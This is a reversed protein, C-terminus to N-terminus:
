DGQKMAQRICAVINDVQQGTFHGHIIGKGAVRGQIIPVERLVGAYIIAMCWGRYRDTVDAFLMSGARDFEFGVAPTGYEDETHYIDDLHSATGVAAGTKVLYYPQSEDGDVHMKVYGEPVKGSDAQEYLKRFQEDADPGRPVALRFELLERGVRDTAEPNPHADTQGSPLTVSGDAGSQPARGCGAGAPIAALLLLCSAIIAPLPRGGPMPTGRM